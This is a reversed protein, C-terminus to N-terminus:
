IAYILSILSPNVVIKLSLSFQNLTMIKLIAIIFIRIIRIFDGM